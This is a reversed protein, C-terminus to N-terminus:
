DTEQSLLIIQGNITTAVVQHGSIPAVTNVLNPGIRYSWKVNGNKSDLAYVFGDKTGFYLTGDREQPMSPAIDYGYSCDSIWDPQLREAAPNVAFVTDRMCRAYIASGDTAVGISERVQFRNSRWITEGTKANIATMYRDPAVIFIKGRGAVPRCAAPSYLVGNRGGSWTWVPTGSQRELAYLNGDWAGFIVKDEYLLPRTEVYGDIQSSKWLLSGSILDICRFFGDSSGVYVKLSDTIPSAIVPAGTKVRWNLVGNGSNLCYINSDTSTFVLSHNRVQPGAYVPAGSEYQWLLNGNELDFAYIRGSADGTYVRGSDVAAAATLTYGNFNRWLVKVQPYQDNTSYDPVDQPLEITTETQLSLTFWPQQKPKGPTKESITIQDESIQVINYGAQGARSLSSRGMAAPLGSYNERRNRHGHGHILFKANHDKILKLFDVWNSVSPNIPYHTAFFLKKHPKTKNLLSDLWRLDQPAFHGDGMRLVPGQHMGIFRIDQHVFTFKDDGFLRIFNRGGSASWKTDHNGPIVYYPQSLQGLLNRATVLYDDTDLETVDGSLITFGIDPQHNIDSVLVALDEDAGTSGIHTDTLWAFEFERSSNCSLTMCSFFVLLWRCRRSSCYVLIKALIHM